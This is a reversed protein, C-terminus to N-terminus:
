GCDEPCNCKNEATACYNDGCALCRITSVATEEWGCNEDFYGAKRPVLGYCCVEGEDVNISQFDQICPKEEGTCDEPCSCVNEHYETECVGNGCDSCTYIDGIFPEHCDDPNYGGMVPDLGECCEGPFYDDYPRMKEGKEACGLDKQVLSNENSVKNESIICGSIFFLLILILILLRM